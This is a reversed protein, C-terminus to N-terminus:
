TGSKIIAAKWLQIGAGGAASIGLRVVINDACKQPICCDFIGTKTSTPRACIGKEGLLLMATNRRLGGGGAGFAVVFISIVIDLLNLLM